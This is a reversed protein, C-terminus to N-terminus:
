RVPDVEGIVLGLFVQYLVALFALLLPGLGIQAEKGMHVDILM